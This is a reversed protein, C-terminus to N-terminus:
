HLDETYPEPPEMWAHITLNDHGSGNIFWKGNEFYNDNMVVAHDYKHNGVEGSICLIYELDEDEPVEEPWPHWRMKQDNM